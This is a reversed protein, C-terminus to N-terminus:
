SKRSYLRFDGNAAMLKWFLLLRGDKCIDAFSVCGLYANWVGKKGPKGEVGGVAKEVAGKAKETLPVKKKTAPKKKEM